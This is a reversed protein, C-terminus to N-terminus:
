VHVHQLAINGLFSDKGVLRIPSLQTRSHRLSSCPFTQIHSLYLAENKGGTEDGTLIGAAKVGADTVSIGTVSAAVSEVEADTSAPAPSIVSAASPGTLIQTAATPHLATAEATSVSLVDPERHEDLAAESLINDETYYLDEDPDELPVILILDEPDPEETTAEEVVTVQPASEKDQDGEDALVYTPHPKPQTDGEPAEVEQQEPPSITEGIVQDGWKLEEESSDVSVIAAPDLAGATEEAAPEGQDESQEPFDGAPEEETNEELVFADGENTDSSDINMTQEQTETHPEQDAPEEAEVEEIVSEDQDAEETQTEVPVLVDSKEGPAAPPRGQPAEPVTVLTQGPAAEEESRDVLAGDESTELAITPAAHHQEPSEDEADEPTTDFGIADIVYVQPAATLLEPPHSEQSVADKLSASVAAGSMDKESPSGGPSPAVEGASGEQLRGTVEALGFEEPVFPFM